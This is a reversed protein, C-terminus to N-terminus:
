ATKAQIHALIERYKKLVEPLPLGIVNTFSGQIEDILTQGFPGQIAYSGAKGLPELTNLYNEIELSTLPRLKVYSIVRKIELLDETKFCFGTLVHHTEGSLATLMARADDLDAPKGFIQNKLVVITDAALVIPPDPNQPPLEQEWVNTAKLLALQEVIQEPSPSSVNDECIDPPIVTFTLGVRELLERRRPSSSALILGM